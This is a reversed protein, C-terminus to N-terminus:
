VVSYGYENGKLSGEARAGRRRPIVRLASPPRWRSCLSDRLSLRPRHRKASLPLPSVRSDPGYRNRLRPRGSASIQHIVKALAANAGIALASTLVAAASSTLAPTPIATKAGKRCSSLM